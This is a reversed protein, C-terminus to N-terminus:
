RCHRTSEVPPSSRRIKSADDSLQQIRVRILELRATHNEKATSIITLNSELADRSLEEGPKALNLSYRKALRSKEIRHKLRAWADKSTLASVAFAAGSAAALAVLAHPWPKDEVARDWWVLNPYPGISDKLKGLHDAYVSPLFFTGVTGALFSVGPFRFEQWTEKLKQGFTRPIRGRVLSDEHRRILKLEKAIRKKEQPLLMFPLHEIERQLQMRTGASIAM